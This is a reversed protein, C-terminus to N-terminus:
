DPTEPAGLLQMAAAAIRQGAGAWALDRAAQRMRMRRPEDKLLEAVRAGLLTLTNVKIAAGREVLYDSNCVEPGPIPRVIAMPAGSVLAEACTLGGPKTVVVDAARMWEHMADTFGVVRVRPGASRELRKRLAENRGAIVVIDAGGNVQVLERLAIETPGVGFGGSLLLIVPGAIPLGLRERAQAPTTEREFEPRVPLGTVLVRTPMAGCAVLHAKGLETAVCYRDTAPHFWMAHTEIDTTVTLCPCDLRGAARLDGTLEAPLFHVNIILRPRMRLIRRSAAWLHPAQLGRRLPSRARDPTNTADYFAGMLWPARRIMTLYGGAYATRFLLNTWTMLDHSELVVAPACRRLAEEIARAAMLHGAGTSAAFILIPRRDALCAGPDTM